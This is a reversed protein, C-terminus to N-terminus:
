MTALLAIVNFAGLTILVSHPLPIVTTLVWFVSMLM